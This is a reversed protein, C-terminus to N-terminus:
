QGMWGGGEEATRMATIRIGHPGRLKSIAIASEFLAAAASAARLLWIRPAFGCVSCWAASCVCVCVVGWMVSVCVGFASSVRRIWSVLGTPLRRVPTKHTHTHTAADIDDCRFLVGVQLRGVAHAVLLVGHVLLHPNILPRCSRRNVEDQM